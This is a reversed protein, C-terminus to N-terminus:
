GWQSVSRPGPAGGGGGGGKGVVGGGDGAVVFGEDNVLEAPIVGVPLGGGVEILDEVGQGGVGVDGAVAEPGELGVEVVEAELGDGGVGGVWGEGLAAFGALPPREVVGANFGEGHGCFVHGGSGLEETGVGVGHGAGGGWFM